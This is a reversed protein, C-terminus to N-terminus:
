THPATKGHTWMREIKELTRGKTEPLFLLIFVFAFLSVLAYAWFTKAPGIAPNENLIPFTQTVIYNCVWITLSALSM